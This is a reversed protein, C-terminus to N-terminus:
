RGQCCKKYKRGSGCPCPDNRGIKTTRSVFPKPKVSSADAFAESLAGVYLGMARGGAIRGQSEMEALFAACLAPLAPRISKPTAMKAVGHLLGFRLDPEEVEAPEVDRSACAVSLFRVLIEPAYERAPSPHDRFRTSACFDDVWHEIQEQRYSSMPPLKGRRDRRSRNKVSEQRDVPRAVAQEASIPRPSDPIVPLM